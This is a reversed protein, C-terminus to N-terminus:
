AAPVRGAGGSLLPPYRRAKGDPLYQTAGRRWAELDIADGDDVFWSVDAIAYHLLLDGGRREITCAQDLDTSSAPDLTVFPWTTRDVHAAPDRKAAAEAAALVDAPFSDPVQYQSRIRALGRTLANNPDVLAKM